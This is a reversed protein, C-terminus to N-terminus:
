GLRLNKMPKPGESGQGVEGEDGNPDQELGVGGDPCDASVPQIFVHTFSNSSHNPRVPAGTCVPAQHNTKKM